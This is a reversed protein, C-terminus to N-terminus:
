ERTRRKGKQREFTHGGRGRGGAEEDMGDDYERAYTADYAPARGSAAGRDGSQAIENDHETFAVIFLVRTRDRKGIDQRSVKSTINERVKGADVRAIDNMSIPISRAVMRPISVKHEHMEITKLEEKGSFNTRVNFVSMSNVSLRRGTSSRVLERTQRPCPCVTRISLICVLLAPGLFWYGRTSAGRQGRGVGEAGLILHVAISQCSSHKARHRSDPVLDKGGAVMDWARKEM